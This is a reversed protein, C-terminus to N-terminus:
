GHQGGDEEQSNVQLEESSEEVEKRDELTLPFESLFLSLSLNAM